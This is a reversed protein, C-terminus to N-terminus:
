ARESRHFTKGQKWHRLVTTPIKSKLYGSEADTQSLTYEHNSVVPGFVSGDLSLAAETGM